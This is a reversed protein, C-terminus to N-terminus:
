DTTQQPNVCVEVYELLCEAEIKIEAYLIDFLNETINFVYCTGTFAASNKDVKECFSCHASNVYATLNEAEIQKESTIGLILKM